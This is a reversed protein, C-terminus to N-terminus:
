FTYHINNAQITVIDKHKPKNESDKKNASKSPTGGRCPMWSIPDGKRNKIPIAGVRRIEIELQFLIKFLILSSLFKHSPDVVYISPVNVTFKFLDSQCCFNIISCTTKIIRRYHTM